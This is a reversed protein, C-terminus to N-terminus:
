TRHLATAYSVSLRKQRQNYFDLSFDRDLWAERFLALHSPYREFDAVATLSCDNVTIHKSTINVFENLAAYPDEEAQCASSLQLILTIAAILMLPSKSM